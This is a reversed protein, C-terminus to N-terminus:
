LDEGDIDANINQFSNLANDLAQNARNPADLVNTTSDLVRQYANSPSTGRLADQRQKWLPAKFQSQKQQFQTLTDSTKDIYVYDSSALDELLVGSSHIKCDCVKDGLTMDALSVATNTLPLKGIGEKNNAFWNSLNFELQNGDKIDYLGLDLLQKDTFRQRLSGLVREQLDSSISTKNRSIDDM